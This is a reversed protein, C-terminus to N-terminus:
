IRIPTSKEDDFTSDRSQPSSDGDGLKTCKKVHDMSAQASKLFIDRNFFSHFSFNGGDDLTNMSVFKVEQSKSISHWELVIFLVGDSKEPSKDEFTKEKLVKMLKQHLPKRNQIHRFERYVARQYEM